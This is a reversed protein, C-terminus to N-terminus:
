NWERLVGQLRNLCDMYEITIQLSSDESLTFAHNEALAIADRLASVLPETAREFQRKTMDILDAIDYLKQDQLVEWLFIQSEDIRDEKLQLYIADYGIGRDFDALWEDLAFAESPKLTQM